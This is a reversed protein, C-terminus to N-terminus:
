YVEVHWQKNKKLQSLNGGHDIVIHCTEGPAKPGVLREVSVITATYPEKPKHINLPPENPDELALPRVEVKSIDAQAQAHPLSMCVVSQSWRSGSNITKSDLYLAPLWQKSSFSLNQTKFACRPLSCDGGVPVAVPAQSVASHAM